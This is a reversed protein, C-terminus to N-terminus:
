QGVETEDCTCAQDYPVDPALGWGGTRPDDGTDRYTAEFQKASTYTAKATRIWAGPARRYLARFFDRHGHWCVAGPVVPQYLEGRTAAATSRREHQSLRQYPPAWRPKGNWGLIHRSRFEGTRLTFRYEPGKRTVHEVPDRSGYGGGYLRVGVEAAADQLQEITVNRALM